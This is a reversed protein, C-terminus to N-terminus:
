SRTIFALAKVAHTRKVIASTDLRVNGTLAITQTNFVTCTLTAKKAQLDEPKM